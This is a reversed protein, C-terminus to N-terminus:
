QNWGWPAGATGGGGEDAEPERPDDLEGFDDPEADPDGDMADLHELLRDVLRNLVPRPLSPIASLLTDLPAASTARSAM